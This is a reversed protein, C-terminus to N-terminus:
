KEFSNGVNERERERGIKRKKGRGNVEREKTVESFLIWCVADCGLVTLERMNTILEEKEDEQEVIMTRTSHM